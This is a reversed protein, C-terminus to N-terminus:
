LSGEKGEETSPDTTPSSSTRIFFAVSKEKKIKGEVKKGRLNHVEKLVL